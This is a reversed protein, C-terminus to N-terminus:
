FVMLFFHMVDNMVYKIVVSAGDARRLTVFNGTFSQLLAHQGLSSTESDSRTLPLLDQDLFVASCLM